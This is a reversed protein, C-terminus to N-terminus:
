RTGRGPLAEADRPPAAPTYPTQASTSAALSRACLALPSFGRQVLIGVSGRQEWQKSFADGPQVAGGQEASGDTPM